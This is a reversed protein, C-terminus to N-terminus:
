EGITMIRKIKAPDAALLCATARRPVPERWKGDRAFIVTFLPLADDGRGANVLSVARWFKLEPNDPQLAGARGYYL